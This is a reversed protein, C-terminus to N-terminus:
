GSAGAGLASSSRVSTGHLTGTVRGRARDIHLILRLSLRGGAADRLVAHLRPGSLSDLPGVYLNPITRPGFSVRSDTVRVGGRALPEGRLWVRVLEAGVVADIGVVALGSAGQRSQRITGLLRGSFPPSPLSAEQAALLTPPTGARAAWGAAGPGSRYWIVLGLPVLVAAAAAATRPGTWPGGWAAVRWLAALGVAATSGAGLAVLWGVRADSGTGLAHVLAVPWSAYALWHLARWARVGVRTRLLSTVAIALLLDFAVTGLGLWLPRYPSRFPILADSLAIPAFGDAVTTVVHVAVFAIALLTLNRHLGQVLFRPLRDTRWRAVGVVGLLVVTTLLLLAVVGTGRTAYWLARTSGSAALTV